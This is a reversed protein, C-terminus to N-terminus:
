HKAEVQNQTLVIVKSDTSQDVTLGFSNELVSFVNDLDALKIRAVVQTTKLEDQKLAFQYGTYRSLENVVSELSDGNFTLSGKQWALFADLKDPDIVELATKEAVKVGNKLMLKEGKNVRLTGVPHRLGSSNTKLDPTDAVAVKGDTVILEVELENEISVNFATGVAEIAKDQAFVVLPWNKDHAVQIHLEGKDLYLARNKETYVVKVKSNTNLKLVSQDPLNFSAQEGYRTHYTKVYQPSQEADPIDAPIIQQQWWTAIQNFYRAQPELHSLIILGFCLVASFAIALRPSFSKKTKKHQAQYPFIESLNALVDADKVPGAVQEYCARHQQSQNLWTKFEAQEAESMGEEERILWLAADSLVQEKSKLEVVNDNSNNV